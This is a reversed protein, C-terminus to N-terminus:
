LAQYNSKIRLYTVKLQEVQAPTLTGSAMMQRTLHNARFMCKSAFERTKLSLEGDDTVDEVIHRLRDLVEDVGDFELPQDFGESLEFFRRLAADTQTSKDLSEIARITTRLDRTTEFEGSSHLVMNVIAAAETNYESTDIKPLAALFVQTTRKTFQNMTDATYKLIDRTFKPDITGKPMTRIMANINTMEVYNPADRSSVKFFGDLAEDVYEKIDTMDPLPLADTTPEEINRELSIYKDSFLKVTTAYNEPGIKNRDIRRQREIIGLSTDFFELPDEITNGFRVIRNNLGIVDYEGTPLIEPEAEPVEAISNPGLFYDEFAGLAQRSLLASVAQRGAEWARVEPTAYAGVDKITETLITDALNKHARLEDFDGTPETNAYPAGLAERYAPDGVYTEAVIGAEINSLKRTRKQPSM